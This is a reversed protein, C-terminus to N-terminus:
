IECICSLILCMGYFVRVEFFVIVKQLYKEDGITCSSFWRSMCSTLISDRCCSYFSTEPRPPQKETGQPFVIETKDQQDSSHHPTSVQPHEEVLVGLFKFDPVREVCSGKIFLAKGGPTDVWNRRFDLKWHPLQDVLEM